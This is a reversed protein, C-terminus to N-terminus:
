QAPPLQISNVLCRLCSGFLDLYISAVKLNGIELSFGHCPEYPCFGSGASHTQMGARGEWQQLLLDPARLTSRQFM